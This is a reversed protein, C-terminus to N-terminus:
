FTPAIREEAQSALRETLKFAKLSGASRRVSHVSSARSRMVASAPMQNLAPSMAGPGSSGRARQDLGLGLPSTAASSTSRQRVHFKGMMSSIATAGDMPPSPPLTMMGLGGERGGSDASSERSRPPSPGRDGGRIGVARNHVVRVPSGVTTDVFPPFSTPMKSLRRISRMNKDIFSSMRRMATSNEHSEFASTGHLPAQTRATHMENLTMKVQQSSSSSAGHPLPHASLGQRVQTMVRDFDIATQFTNAAASTAVAGMSLSRTLLFFSGDRIRQRVLHWRTRAPNAELSPQYLSHSALNAYFIELRKAMRELLQMLFSALTSVRAAPGEGEAAELGMLADFADMGACAEARIDELLDLDLEVSKTAYNIIGKENFRAEEANGVFEGVSAVEKSTRIADESTKARAIVGLVDPLSTNSGSNASNALSFSLKLVLEQFKPGFLASFGTQLLRSQYQYFSRVGKINLLPGQYWWQAPDIALTPDAARAENSLMANMELQHAVLTEVTSRLYSSWLDYMMDLDEEGHFDPKPTLHGVFYKTLLSSVEPNTTHALNDFSQSCDVGANSRVILTGGPHMSCFDTVDYAKGHVGIWLRSGPKDGTCLALQSMPITPLNCPLPKPTMFVDIMFRREAFATNLLAESSEMTSTRYKYLAKRIGSMVSEFVAVSGCVYLHGGLGGYKKSMVLDCITEGQEIILSDIYRPQTQREVMDRGQM